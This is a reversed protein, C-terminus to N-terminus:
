NRDNKYRIHLSYGEISNITLTKAIYTTTENHPLMTCIVSGHDIIFGALNLTCTLDHYVTHQQAM